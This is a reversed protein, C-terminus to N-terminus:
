NQVRIVMDCLSQAARMITDRGLEPNALLERNFPISVSVAFNHEGVTCIMEVELTPATSVREGRLMQGNFTNEAKEKEEPTARTSVKEQERDPVSIMESLVNEFRKQRAEQSDQIAMGMGRMVENLSDQFTM